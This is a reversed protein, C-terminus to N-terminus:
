RWLCLVRYWHVYAIRITHRYAQRFTSRNESLTRRSSPDDFDCLFRYYANMTPVDIQDPRGSHFVCQARVRQLVSRESNLLLQLDIETRAHLGFDLARLFIARCCAICSQHHWAGGIFSFAKAHARM